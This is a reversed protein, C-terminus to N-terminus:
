WKVICKIGDGINNNVREFTFHTLRLDCQFQSNWRWGQLIYDSVEWEPKDLDAYLENM